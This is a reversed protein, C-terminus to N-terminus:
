GPPANRHSTKRTPNLYALSSGIKAPLPEGTSERDHGCASLAAGRMQRLCWGAVIWMFCLTLWAVLSAKVSFPDTAGPTSTPVIDTTNNIAAHMLMTILLSGGTRWYLWAMAVSIATTGLVYVPFSQGGKDGVMLFFPLHWLAWLVGLLLSAWPLGMRTALRPLAYGRWGVEEGSQVPTSFPIALLLLYWPTDGFAPWAGGIFRYMLAAAIKIVLMYALAFVYWRAASPAQVVPRVLAVSGSRGDSRATLALAVLAPAFVGVLYIAGPIGATPSERGSTLAASGFFCTWSTLFTLAFFVALERV